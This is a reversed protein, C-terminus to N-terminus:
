IIKLCNEKQHIFNGRPQQARDGSRERPDSRKQGFRCHRIKSVQKELQEAKAALAQYEQMSVTDKNAITSNFAQKELLAAKAVLAQYQDIVDKQQYRDTDIVTIIPM